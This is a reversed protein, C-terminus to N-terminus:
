GHNAGHRLAVGAEDLLHCPISAFWHHLAAAMMIKVRGEIIVILHSHRAECIEIGKGIVIEIEQDIIEFLHGIERKCGILCGTKFVIM